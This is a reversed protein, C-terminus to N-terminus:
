LYLTYEHDKLYNVLEKVRQSEGRPCVMIVDPTQIIILNKIGVTVVLKDVDSSVILSDGTDIGEHKARLIINGNEDPKFVEFFSDWSGVDIWDLTTLPLVAALSTKEMIGYDFTEPQIKMWADVFDAALHNDDM